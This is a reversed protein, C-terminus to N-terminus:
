RHRKYLNKWRRGNLILSVYHKHLKYQKAIATQQVGDDWLAYIELVQEETLKAYAHNEGQHGRGKTFMDRVNDARTGSFLHKPNCCPPNDCSHCVMLGNPIPGKFHEYSLRHVYDRFKGNVHRDIAVERYGHETIASSTDCVWCGNPLKRIGRLFKEILHERMSRGDDYKSPPRPM